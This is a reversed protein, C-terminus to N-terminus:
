VFFFGNDRAAAFSKSIISSCFHNLIYNYEQEYELFYEATLNNNTIISLDKSALIHSIIQLQVM